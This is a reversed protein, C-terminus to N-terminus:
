RIRGSTIKSFSDCGALDSTKFDCKDGNDCHQCIPVMEGNLYARYVTKEKKFTPQQPQKM